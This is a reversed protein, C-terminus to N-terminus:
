VEWGEDDHGEDWSMDMEMLREFEEEDDWDEDLEMMQHDSQDDDTGSQMMCEPDETEQRRRGPDAARDSKTVVRIGGVMLVQGEGRQMAEALM